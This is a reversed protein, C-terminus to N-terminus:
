LLTKIAQVKKVNKPGTPKKWQDPKHTQYWFALRQAIMKREAEPRGTDVMRLLWKNTMETMFREPQSDFGDDDMEQEMPTMAARKEQLLKNAREKEASKLSQNWKSQLQETDREALSFRGYGTATKAGIGSWVLSEKLWTMASALDAEAGKVGPRPLLGFLFQQNEKVALYYIPTPSYWDGPIANHGTGSGESQEQAEQYYPAYHPTMIEAVLHVPKLPLTDLFIISGAQKEDKTKPEDTKTRSGFIRLKQEDNIGVWQEAWARVMGKLSSGSLYPTGLTPHWTFGNEVPHTRGLGTVFRSDNSFVQFDGASDSILNLLRLVLSEIGDAEGVSLKGADEIWNKKNDKKGNLQWQGNTKEWVNFFKDYWLGAHAQPPYKTLSFGQQPDMHYLPLVM